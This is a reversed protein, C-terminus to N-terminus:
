LFSLQAGELSGLLPSDNNLEAPLHFSSCGAPPSPKGNRSLPSSTPSATNSTLHADSSCHTSHLASFSQTTSNLSFLSSVDFSPKDNINWMFTMIFNFSHDYTPHLQSLSSKTVDLPLPLQLLMPPLHVSCCQPM